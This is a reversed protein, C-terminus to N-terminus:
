ENRMIIIIIIENEYKENNENKNMENKKMM